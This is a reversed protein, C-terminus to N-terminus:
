LFARLLRSQVNKLNSHAADLEPIKDRLSRLLTTREIASQIVLLL